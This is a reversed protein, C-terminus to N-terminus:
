GSEGPAENAAVVDAPQGGAMPSEGEERKLMAILPETEELFSDIAPQTFADASQVWRLTIVMSKTLSLISDATGEYTAREGNLKEISIKIQHRGRIMDYFVERNLGKWADPIEQWIQFAGDLEPGYTVLMRRLLAGVRPSLLREVHEKQDPQERVLFYWHILYAGDEGFIGKWIDWVRQYTDPDYPPELRRGVQAIMEDGAREDEALRADVADVARQMLEDADFAFYPQALLVSWTLEPQADDTM